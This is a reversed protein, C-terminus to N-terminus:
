LSLPLPGSLSGRPDQSCPLSPGGRALSSSSPGVPQTSDSYPLQDLLSCPRPAPITLKHKPLDGKSPFIGQLLGHCGVGTNQGPSEGHVSSGRSSCPRLSYSVGPSSLPRLSNSVVSRSPVACPLQGPFCLSLALSSHPLTCELGPLLLIRPDPLQAWGPLPAPCSPSESRGDSSETSGVAQVSGM